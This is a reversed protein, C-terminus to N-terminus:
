GRTGRRGGRTAVALGAGFVVVAGVVFPWVPVGGGSGAPASNDAKPGPAGKGPTSLTFSTTGTVPHSDASLVRYAITYKGAPGLETLAVSVRSGNVQTDGTSWRNGDPGVVSLSDFSSQLPENFTLTVRPPGSAVTTGDAPDASVLYSHAAAAGTGLLLALGLLAAVSSWRWWVIV